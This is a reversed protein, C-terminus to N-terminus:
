LQEPRPEGYARLYPDAQAKPVERRGGEGMSAAYTLMLWLFPEQEATALSITFPHASPM